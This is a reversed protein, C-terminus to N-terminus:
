GNYEYQLNAHNSVGTLNKPTIFTDGTNIQVQSREVSQLGSELEYLKKFRCDYRVRIPQSGMETGLMRNKTIHLESYNVFHEKDHIDSRFLHTVSAAKETLSKSGSVDGLVPTKDERKLSESDQQASFIVAINLEQCLHETDRSITEYENWRQSQGQKTRASVSNVTDFFVCEANYEEAFERLMSDIDDWYKSSGAKPDTILLLNKDYLEAIKNKLFDKATAIEEASYLDPRQPNVGTFQSFMFKMFLGRAIEYNIYISPIGQDLMNKWASLMLITNHTPIFTRGALYLHSPSDVQICQCDVTLVPDISEIVRNPQEQTYDFSLLYSTAGHIEYKNFTVKYGLSSILQRMDHALTSSALAISKKTYPTQHLDLYGQLFSSRTGITGYLIHDPIKYYQHDFCRNFESSLHKVNIEVIQDEPDFKSVEILPIRFGNYLHSSMINEVIDEILEDDGYCIISDNKECSENMWLGLLYPSVEIDSTIANKEDIIIAKSLTIELPSDREMMEVTSLTEGTSITWLHDGSAVIDEGTDFKIMFCSKDTFVESKFVVNCESGSEDYVVDGISLTGMTKFGNTTLIPTDLPLAKGSGPPASIIHYGGKSWGGGFARDLLPFGTPVSDPMMEIQDIETMWDDLSLIKQEHTDSKAKKNIDSIKQIIDLREDESSATQLERIATEMTKKTARRKVVDIVGLLEEQNVFSFLVRKMSEKDISGSPAIAQLEAIVMDHNLIYPHKSQNKYVNKCAKFLYQLHAGQIYTEDLGRKLIERAGSPRNIMLNLLREDVSVPIYKSEAKSQTM